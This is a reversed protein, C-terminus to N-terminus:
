PCTQCRNSNCPITGSTIRATQRNTVLAVAPVGPADNSSSARVRARSDNNHMKDHPAPKNFAWFRVLFPASFSHTLQGFIARLLARPNSAGSLSAPFSFSSRFPFSSHHYLVGTSSLLLYRGDTYLSINLPPM